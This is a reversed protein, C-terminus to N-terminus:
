LPRDAPRLLPRRRLGRRRLRRRRLRVPLRRPRTGLLGRRAPRRAPGRADRHPVNVAAELGALLWVTGLGIIVMWHWKAWPLRDLRAPVKTEIEEGEAGSGIAETAMGPPKM